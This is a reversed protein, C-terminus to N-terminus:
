REEDCKIQAFEIRCNRGCRINGLADKVCNDGRFSACKVEGLENRMCSYGCEIKDLTGVICEQDPHQACKANIGSQKCHYGCVQEGFVGVCEKRAHHHHREPGGDVIVPSPKHSLAFKYGQRYSDNLAAQNAPCLAAYDSQMDSGSKADNVGAAYAASENCASAIMDEKLATCGLVSFVLIATVLCATLFKPM